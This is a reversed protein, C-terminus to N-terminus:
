IKKVTIIWQLFQKLYLKSEEDKLSRKHYILNKQRDTIKVFYNILLFYAFILILSAIYFYYFQVAM